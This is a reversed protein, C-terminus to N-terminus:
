KKIFDKAQQETFEFYNLKEISPIGLGVDSMSCVDRYWQESQPLSHLGVRGKFGADVSASVAAAMMLRGVGKYKPTDTFGHRNWPATALIDIYVLELGKQESIHSRQKTLNIFMLGETMEEAEIAFSMYDLRTEREKTKERWKWHSDQLNAAVFEANEKIESLRDKFAPRWHNEIDDINNDAIADYLHCQEFKETQRNYLDFTGLLKRM